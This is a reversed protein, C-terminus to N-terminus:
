SYFMQSLCSQQDLKATQEKNNKGSTDFFSVTVGRCVESIYPSELNLTQSLEAFKYIDLHSSISALLTTKEYSQAYETRAKNM